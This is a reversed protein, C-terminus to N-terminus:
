VMKRQRELWRFVALASIVWIASVLFGGLVDSPFHVGLYVRSIGIALIMFGSVLVLMKRGNRSNVNKWLIYALISYFSFAIMSHGSPFSYGNAEMIRHIMPRERQFYAKLVINLLPTAGVVIFFLFAQRRYNLIFVLHVIVGISLIIVPLGWGFMTIFQMMKTLWPTELGQIAGIIATDFRDISRDSIMSALYGFLIGLGICVVFAALLRISYRKM